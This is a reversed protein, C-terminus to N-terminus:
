DEKFWHARAKMIIENAEDKSMANKGLIDLLEDGSLEALDDLTIIKNDMFIELSHHNLADVTEVLAILRDEVKLDTVRKKTKEKSQQLAESARNQLEEGIEEDLGEMNGFRVLPTEIIDELSEFGEACLLQALMDDVDLAEMFLKVRSENEQLRRGAEEEETLIDISWGTLQSALRVNQGRRGIALSLQGQDVIVDVHRADEDIVVKIVEAPQLANVIYTAVDPSWVVIDVKEGQLENIVAQVRSGRVGVCSGVPDLSADSTYVAMKARSGADRAVSKIEILGEYIEPVEQEFLRAMMLPHARSLTAIPGRGEQKLETVVVRIREDQRIAERPIQDERRLIGEANGFDVIANGFEVRKITGSVLSGIKDKLDNFQRQREADRVKQFIVQRATQAAIRGFDIPPLEETIESGLEYSADILLAKELIIQSYEDEVIDVVTLVKFLQLEGTKDDIIARIDYENGYKNKAVRQIASQMAELIQEKEVGKERAVTEAVILLENKPQKVEVARTIM